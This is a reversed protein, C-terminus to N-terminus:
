ARQYTAYVQLVDGSAFTAPYTATLATFLGNSGLAWVTILSSSSHIPALQYYGVGQRVIYARSSGYAAAATYPLTITPSATGFTSTSGFTVTVNLHVTKGITTASGVITGNGIAWGTGGLTPTYGSWTGFASGSYASDIVVTGTGTDTLYGTFTGQLYTGTGANTVTGGTSKFGIISTGTVGSQVRISDNAGSLHPDIIVSGTGAALDIGYGGNNEFYPNVWVTKVGSGVFVSGTNSQGICSYFANVYCSSAILAPSSNIEMDLNYFANQNTSTSLNLPTGCGNITLDYFSGENVFTTVVGTSFNGVKINRWVPRIVSNSAISGGLQIGVSSGSGPGILIFDALRWGEIVATPAITIANGSTATSRLVTGTFNSATAWGSSGFAGPLDRHDNWGAGILSQGASLTLTSFLLVGTQMRLTVGPNANIVAQIGSTSDTAGTYDIGSGVLPVPAQSTDVKSTQLSAISSGHSTQTSNLSAISSDVSDAWAPMGPEGDYHGM